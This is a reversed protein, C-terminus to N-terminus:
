GGGEGERPYREIRSRTLEPRGMSNWRRLMDPTLNENEYAHDLAEKLFTVDLGFDEYGKLITEYYGGYPRMVGNSRKKYFLCRRKENNVRLLMYRKEYFGGAVGEFRDLAKECEPTIEWLGGQIKADPDDKVIDVDAVGRFILRGHPLILKCAKRAAPCRVKM